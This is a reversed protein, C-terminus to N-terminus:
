TPTGPINKSIKLDTWISFLSYSASLLKNMGPLVSAKTASNATSSRGEASRSGQNRRKSHLVQGQVSCESSLSPWLLEAFSFRWSTSKPFGSIILITLDRLSRHAPCTAHIPFSLLAHFSSTPFGSPFRGTPLGLILHSFLILISFTKYWIPM